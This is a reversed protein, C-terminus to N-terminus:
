NTDLVERVKAALGKTSFPKQMFQMGEEIIGHHAIVDSTYGSMFLRKMGPYLSLLRKALDRGNMEPMVVDTILLHIGGAHEEALRIAEGPSGAALVTYGLSGLLRRGLKLIGPDDEVLLITEMGSRIAEAPGREPVVDAKGVFRPLYIRFTTGHGPESYVNVFGHNQKVTGYVTALGLGTGEGVGKTTYFPEFIHELVEKSMGCGTDSLILMVYDGPLSSAHDECYDEDFTTNETAITIKGGGSIADRANVCLNALIQDIQTPDIRIPWLDNGPKWILEIDEGILRRVMRLMGDVTDNLNLVKPAVTQKRAFALLQRTLSASREAAKRIEILDEHLPDAPDIEELATEAHGLILQLMNNFDHAVGGALRGVSEMKLAQRLQEEIIKRETIDIATATLYKPAGNEDRVLTGTMLMPFEHGDKHVHGVEQVDFAGDRKMQVLLREVEEMQAESHMVRLSKGLLEAPEYGHAAAWHKNIYTLIGKMDAIAAGFNASDFVTKFLQLSAEAAKQDEALSLLARRSRDSEELLRRLRAESEQLADEARRRGTINEFAVALRKGPLMFVRIRFAGSVRQDKYEMEETDLTRGTKAVELYKDTIGLRKAEPWVEDFGRGIWDEGRLGTLREAEPNASVLVLLDPPTFQYIFVGLPLAKVLDDSTQLSRRLAEEAHRRETIDQMFGTLREPGSPGSIVSVLDLIWRIQGDATRIRYEFRHDRGEKTELECFRVARERDDEHVAAAWAEFGQWYESPRGLVKEAQPGVYTFRNTALDLEWPVMGITEALFRFKREKARLDEMAELEHKRTLGISAVLEALRALFNLAKRFRDIPFVPIERFAKIYEEEDFGFERAQRRFFQETAEDPPENFVQGAFVNAVHEGEIIVPSSADVLGQPCRYIVFPEGQEVEKRIKLDSEVCQKMIEPHRRHFDTCIRQWGSGTLIEGDMDIIASPIATAEYLEDTLKQLREIDVLDKFRHKM